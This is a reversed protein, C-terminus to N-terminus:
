ADYLVVSLVFRAFIVNQPDDWVITRIFVWLDFRQRRRFLHLTENSSEKSGEAKRTAPMKAPVDMASFCYLETRARLPKAFVVCSCKRILCDAVNHSLAKEWDNQMLIWAIEHLTCTTKPPSSPVGYASFKDSTTVIAAVM